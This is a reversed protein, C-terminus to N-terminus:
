ADPELLRWAAEAKSVKPQRGGLLCSHKNPNDNERHSEDATIPDLGPPLPFGFRRRIRALMAPDTPRTRLATAERARCPEGTGDHASSDNASESSFRM